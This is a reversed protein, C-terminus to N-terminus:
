YHYEYHSSACYYVVDASSEKILFYSPLTKTPPKARGLFVM